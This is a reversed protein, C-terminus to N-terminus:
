HDGSCHTGHRHPLVAQEVMPCFGGNLSQCDTYYGGYYYDNPHYNCTQHGTEGAYYENAQDDVVWIDMMDPDYGPASYPGGLCSGEQRWRLYYGVYNTKGSPMIALPTPFGITRAAAAVAAGAKEDAAEAGTAAAATVGVVAVTVVAMVGALKAMSMKQFRM